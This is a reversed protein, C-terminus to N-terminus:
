ICDSGNLAGARPGPEPRFKPQRRKTVLDVACGARALERAAVWTAATTARAACFRSTPRQREDSPDSVEATDSNNSTRDASDNQNDHSTHSTADAQRQAANNPDHRCTAQAEDFAVLADPTKTGHLQQFRHAATRIEKRAERCRSRDARAERNRWSAAAASQRLCRGPRRAENKRERPEDLAAHHMARGVHARHAVISLEGAKTGTAFVARIDAADFVRLTPAFARMATEIECSALVDWLAIHHRLLM